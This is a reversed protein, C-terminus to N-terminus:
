SNQVPLVAALLGYVLIGNPFVLCLGVCLMRVCKSSLGLYDAIGGCVGAVKRDIRSKGFRKEKKQEM